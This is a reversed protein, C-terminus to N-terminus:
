IVKSAEERLDSIIEMIEEHFSKPASLRGWGKQTQYLGDFATDYYSEIHHPIARENLISELLNAEHYNELTVVKIFDEMARRSMAM